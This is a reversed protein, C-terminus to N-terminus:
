LPEPDELAVLHERVRRVWRESQEDAQVSLRPSQVRLEGPVAVGLFDLVGAVVRRSCRISRSPTGATARARRRGGRM